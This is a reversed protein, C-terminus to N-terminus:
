RTLVLTRGSIEIRRFRQLYAMGLLSKEMEGENVWASVDRDGIPGIQVDTLTIRATRVPGNATMARGTFSLDTMAVGARRADAQTLVIESAGTDVLFEVPKGNVMLTLYYHGDPARPVEIQGSDTISGLSPRISSRIDEWLGFVAIVGLFILGWAMAQQATRGLSNRNHVVFWVVLVTGLIGLYALRGWDMESMQAGDNRRGTM